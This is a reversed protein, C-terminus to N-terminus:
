HIVLGDSGSYERSRMANAMRRAKTTGVGHVYHFYDPMKNCFNKGKHGFLHERANTATQAAAAQYIGSTIYQSCAPQYNEPRFKLYEDVSALLDEDKPPTRMGKENVSVAALYKKFLEHDIKPIEIKDRCRRLMDANALLFGETKAINVNMLVGEYDLKIGRLLSHGPAKCSSRLSKKVSYFETRQQQSKSSDSSM